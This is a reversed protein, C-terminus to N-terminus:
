LVGKSSPLKYSFPNRKVAMKLARALAKFVAEILHHNNEGAASVYINAHMATALSHFFHKFMETPTDGVYERTFNVDWVLEARGGFDILVTARSEDMPLVFGYREMGRKQGVAQYFAEGLALAVDEMTHHEDVELDGHCSINLTMDGHHPLQMLMHDFFHLGTSITSPAVNDLNLDVQIDTEATTRSVHATREGAIIYAAIEDWTKFAKATPPLPQEVSGILIGQAGLNEALQLDTLRDGVVFSSALDYDGSTYAGLLATGPKRTPSHQYEFTRDIIIDDFTVGEDALTQLVFNHVPWFTDEPFSDTGLGDQNTVMVLRYDTTALHKLASIVGPVFALKEFSDIQEDDPERIITGDRDIFIAKLKNPTPM